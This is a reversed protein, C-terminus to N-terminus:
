NVPLVFEIYEGCDCKEMNNRQYKQYHCGTPLTKQDQLVEITIM